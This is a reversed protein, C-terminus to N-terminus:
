TPPLRGPLKQRKLEKGPPNCRPVGVPRVGLLGKDQEVLGAPPQWTRILDATTKYAEDKSELVDADPVTLYVAGNKLIIEPGNLLTQMGNKLTVWKSVPPWNSLNRLKEDPWSNQEFLNRLAAEDESMAAALAANTERVRTEIIELFGAKMTEDTVLFVRREPLPPKRGFIKRLSTFM